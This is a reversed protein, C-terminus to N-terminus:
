FEVGKLVAAEFDEVVLLDVGPLLPEAAPRMLDFSKTIQGGFFVTRIGLERLLPGAGEAFAKGASLFAEDTAHLAQWRAERDIAM